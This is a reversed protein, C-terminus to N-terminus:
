TETFTYYKFVEKTITACNEALERLNCHIIKLNKPLSDQLEVLDMHLLGADDASYEGKLKSFLSYAFVADCGINFTGLKQIGDPTTLNSIIYFAREM